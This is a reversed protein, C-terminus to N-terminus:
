SPPTVSVKSDLDVLSLPLDQLDCDTSNILTTYKFTSFRFRSVHQTHTVQINQFHIQQYSSHRVQINKIQIQHLSSLITGYGKSDSDILQM